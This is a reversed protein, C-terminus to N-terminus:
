DLSSMSNQVLVLVFLAEVLDRNLFVLSIPITANTHWYYFILHTAYFLLKESHGFRFLSLYRTFLFRPSESGFWAFAAIRLSTALPVIVLITISVARYLSEINYLHHSFRGLGDLLFSSDGEIFYYAYLCVIFAMELVLSIVSIISYMGYTKNYNPMKKENIYRNHTVTYFMSRFLEVVGKFIGLYGDASKKFYKYGFIISMIQLVICMVGFVFMLWSQLM